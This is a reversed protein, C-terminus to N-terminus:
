KTYFNIIEIEEKDIYESELLYGLFDKETITLRIIGTFNDKKNYAARAKNCINFGEGEEYGETMVRLTDLRKMRKLVEQVELKTTIQHGDNFTIKKM